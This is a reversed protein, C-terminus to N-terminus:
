STTIKSREWAYVSYVTSYLTPVLFTPSGKRLQLDKVNGCRMFHHKEVAAQIVKSVDVLVSFDLLYLLSFCARSGECIGAERTSLFGPPLSLCSRFSATDPRFSPLRPAVLM